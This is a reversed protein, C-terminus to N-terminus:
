RNTYKNEAHKREENHLLFAIYPCPGQLPGM